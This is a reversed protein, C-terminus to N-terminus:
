DAIEALDVSTPLRVKLRFGEVDLEPPADVEDTRAPMRLDDTMVVFELREACNPCEAYCELTHGFTEERLSLLYSDRRGLPLAALEDRSTEPCAVALLTLARDVAHQNLSREWAEVVKAASFANVTLQM